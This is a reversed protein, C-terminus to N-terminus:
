GKLKGTKLDKFRIKLEKIKTTHAVLQQNIEQLLNVTEHLKSKSSSSALAMEDGCLSLELEDQFIARLDLSERDNQLINKLLDGVQDVIEERIKKASMSSLRPNVNKPLTFEDAVVGLAILMLGVLILQKLNM